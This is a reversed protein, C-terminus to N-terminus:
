YARGATHLVGIYKDLVNGFLILDEEIVTGDLYMGQVQQTIYEDSTPPWHYPTVASGHGFQWAVPLEEATEHWLTEAVAFFWMMATGFPDYSDADMDYVKRLEKFGDSFFTMIETRELLLQAVVFALM